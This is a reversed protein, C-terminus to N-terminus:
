TYSMYFVYPWCAIHSKSVVFSADPAMVVSTELACNEKAHVALEAREVM